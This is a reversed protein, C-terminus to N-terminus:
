GYASLQVKTCKDVFIFIFILLCFLTAIVVAVNNQLGSYAAPIGAYRCQARQYWHHGSLLMFTSGWYGKRSYIRVVKSGILMYHGSVVNFM